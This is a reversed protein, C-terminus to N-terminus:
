VTRASQPLGASVDGLSKRISQAFNEVLATGTDLLSQFFPVSARTILIASPISPNPESKAMKAM